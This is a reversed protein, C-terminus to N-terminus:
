LVHPKGSKLNSEYLCTNPNLVASITPSSNQETTSVSLAPKASSGTVNCQFTFNLPKDAVVSINQYTPLIVPAPLVTLVFTINEQIVSTGEEGPCIRLRRTSSWTFWQKPLHVWFPTVQSSSLHEVTGVSRLNFRCWIAHYIRTRM